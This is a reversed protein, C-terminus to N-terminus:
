VKFLELSKLALEKMSLRMKYHRVPHWAATFEGIIKFGAKEYVHIARANTAEPDILVEAVGSFHNLLFSQIMPVALKKGLFRKDCIFLDLTIARGEEQCWQALDADEASDKQVESTILYGFPIGNSYAIWHKCLSSGAFFQDLDNLTNQLGKGHLWERIHDQALWKILLPKQNEMMYAFTLISELKTESM